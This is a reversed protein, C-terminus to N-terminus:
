LAVATQYDVQGFRDAETAANPDELAEFKVPILVEGDKTFEMEADDDMYGYPVYFQGVYAAGYPSQGRFLLAYQTVTAGSHLKLSKYGVTGSGAATASVTGNIVDALNELTSQILNTEVTVGEETRVAKVKGTRQDSSFAEINQSRNVKVGDKTEGLSTWSASPTANLAPKATNATAIYLTGVGVLIDTPIAM